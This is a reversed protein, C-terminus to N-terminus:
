TIIGDRVVGRIKWTTLVGDRIPSSRGTDKNEKIIDRIEAYIDQPYAAFNLPDPANAVQRLKRLKWGERWARELLPIAIDNPLKAVAQYFSPGLKLYRLNPPFRRAM